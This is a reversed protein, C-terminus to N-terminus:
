EENNERKKIRKWPLTTRTAIVTFLYQDTNFSSKNSVVESLLCMYIIYQFGFKMHLIFTSSEKEGLFTISVLGQYRSENSNERQKENINKEQLLIERKKSGRERIDERSSKLYFVACIINITILLYM